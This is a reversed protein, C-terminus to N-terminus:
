WLEYHYRFTRKSFRSGDFLSSMEVVEKVIQGRKNRKYKQTTEATEYSTERILEGRANYVYQHLLGCRDCRVELIRGEPDYKWVMETSDVSGDRNWLELMHARRGLEDCIYYANSVVTTRLGTLEDKRRTERHERVADECYEDYYLDVTTTDGENYDGKLAYRIEKVSRGLTDFREEMYLHAPAQQVAIIEPLAEFTEADQVQALVAGFEEVAGLSISDLPPLPNHQVYTRKLGYESTSYVVGCRLSSSLASTRKILQGTSDFVSSQVLAGKAYNVFCENGAQDYRVLKHLQGHDTIRLTRVGAWRETTQASANRVMALSLYIVLLIGPRTM